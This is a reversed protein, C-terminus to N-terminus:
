KSEPRMAGAVALVCNQQMELPMDEVGELISPLDLLDVRVGLNADLAESLHVIGGALPTLFLHTAPAQGLQSEYYDLSRQIELVLHNFADSESLVSNELDAINARIGRSLYLSNNRILNVMGQRPQLYMLATGQHKLDDNRLLNNLATEAVDVYKLELGAGEALHRASDIVAPKAAVVYVMQRGSPFADEPLQIVDIAATGVDFDVLDKIRWRVAQKLEEEAVDPSEILLLQYQGPSLLVSASAGQLKLKSVAKKLLSEHQANKESASFEYACLKPKDTGNAKIHCVAVGDAQTSVGVLGEVNKKSKM